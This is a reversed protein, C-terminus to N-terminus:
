EAISINFFQTQRDTMVTAFYYFNVNHIICCTVIVLSIESRSFVGYEDTEPV